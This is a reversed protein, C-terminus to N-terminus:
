GNNKVKKQIKESIKNVLKVSIWAAFTGVLAGGLVDTLFHVGVYMRSFGILGALVLAAIGLKKQSLCQYYAFAAAFSCATHGSPFSYSGLRKILIDLGEIVDYPRTRAVVNKLTVNTFFLNFLLALLAAIGAKRTKKFFLFIISVSIWFWGDDALSTILKWFPTMWDQRIYEQIFLLISGELQTLVGM